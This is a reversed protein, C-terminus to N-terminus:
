RRCGSLNEGGYLSRRGEIAEMQYLCKSSRSSKQFQCHGALINILRFNLFIVPALVSCLIYCANKMFCVSSYNLLWTVNTLERQTTAFSFLLACSPKPLAQNDCPTKTHTNTHTYCGLLFSTRSGTELIQTGTQVHVSTM